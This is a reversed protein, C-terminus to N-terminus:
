KLPKFAIGTLDRELRASKYGYSTPDKLKILLCFQKENGFKKRLARDYNEILYHVAGRNSKATQGSVLIVPRSKPEPYIRALIAHESRDKEYRFEQGQILIAINEPDGPMYPNFRIEQLFNALHIKTRQNSDPGGLCFETASGPPEVFKEFPAIKLEVDIEEALKAVEILTQVDEHSMTNLRKPNQNMVAFC